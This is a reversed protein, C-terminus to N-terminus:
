AADRRERQWRRIFPRALRDSVGLHICAKALGWNKENMLRLVAECRDLFKIHCGGDYRTVGQRQLIQWVRFRSVGYRDAIEQMTWGDRYFREMESDRVEDRVNM